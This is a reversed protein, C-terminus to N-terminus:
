FFTLEPARRRLELWRVQVFAVTATANSRM